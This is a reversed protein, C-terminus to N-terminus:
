KEKLKEEFWWDLCSEYESYYDFPPLKRIQHMDAQIVFGDESLAKVLYCWSEVYKGTSRDLGSRLALLDVVIGFAGNFWTHYRANQLIVLEGKVFSM